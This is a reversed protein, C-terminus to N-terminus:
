DFLNEVSRFLYVCLCAYYMSFLELPFFLRCDHVGYQPLDQWESGPDIVGAYLVFQMPFFCALLLPLNVFGLDEKIM